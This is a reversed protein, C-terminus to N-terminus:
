RRGSTSTPRSRAAPRALLPAPDGGAHAPEFRDFWFRSLPSWCVVWGVNYRDCYRRVEAPSWEDIPRDGLQFDGFAAMEHHRIFATQYLGGIFMRDDPGLLDPLLPTWHVSEPDTAELLRLQDEFLIRASLDTNARLWSSWGACRPRSGSSWRGIRPWRRASGGPLVAARGVGWAGLIAVWALGVAVAGRGGGGVWRALWGSSGSRGGLRGPGGAPLLVRRPVPAAGPDEDAGLPQRVRDPAILAVISGASRRRRRGGGASGGPWWGRWGWSWCSWASGARSRRARPLLRAPVPGLQDDHVAGLRDPDGPVALALGALAPQGAVAVAAAGLSRWRAVALRAAPGVTAYFALLGASRWSRRRSTSSSCRRGRRGGARALGAADAESRVPRLAGAAARRGGLGLRVRVAREALARDPVRGLVRVVGPGVGVAVEAAGLGAAWAGGAVAALLLISAPWCGSRTRGSLGGGGGILDFLISPNSSSDWVPTEPYGAMFFPDYGWTTGAERFFRAGLAGHYEHIAHDVVVM